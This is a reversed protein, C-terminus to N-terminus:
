TLAAPASETATIESRRSDGALATAAKRRTKPYFMRFLIIDVEASSPEFLACVVLSPKTLPRPRVLEVVRTIPDMIPEPTKITDASIARRVSEGASSIAAQATVPKRVM